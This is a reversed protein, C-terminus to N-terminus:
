LAVLKNDDLIEITTDLFNLVDEHTTSTEDNFSPINNYETGLVDQLVVSSLGKAIGFVEQGRVGGKIVDPEGLANMLAGEVCFAYKGPANWAEHEPKTGNTGPVKVWAGKTWRSKNNLQARARRFAQKLLVKAARKQSPTYGVTRHNVQEKVRKRFESRNQINVSM